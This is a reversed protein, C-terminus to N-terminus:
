DFWLPISVILEKTNHSKQVMKISGYHFQFMAFLGGKNRRATMKISGYHFQFETATRTLAATISKLRVMTSNFGFTM